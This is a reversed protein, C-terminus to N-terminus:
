KSVQSAAKYIEVIVPDNDQWYDVHAMLIDGHRVGEVLQQRAAALKGADADNVLIASFAHPYFFRTAPDTGLAALDIFSKFPATYAYHLPTTEEPIFLSDPFAATLKQFLAAPLVAGDPEVTSDVYFVTAGWRDHAYKAKRTLEALIAQPDLFAQQATKGAGRTFHQPRLCVGVRLGADRLTAFYADDLKRGNYRSGSAHVISEMEPSIEAIADPSCVYSTPQSYEEGEIDWTIVGGANMRHANAAEEAARTLIRKQFAELGSPTLVDVADTNFYRRPNTPFGGPQHHDPGQPSSALYATGLARHDTWHLSPPYHAAWSTYADTALSSSPTNAPAFRLSVTYEDKQGPRVPRDNHPQFTALGDPTTGSIETSYAVGDPSSAPWFGTYLPKAADPAVAAVEGSGWDALTVSPAITNFAMQPYNPQSFGKPLHPFHLVAPFVAAGDFVIGSNANNVITTIIDLTTPTPAYHVSIAGWSFRYEWTRTAPNWSRGANAEGWGYQGGTLLKGNADTAKMHGIYFKDAPHTNIDALPIGNWSLTQLGNPGFTVQLPSSASDQGSGPQALFLLAACLLAAHRRPRAMMTKTPEPSHSLSNPHPHLFKM